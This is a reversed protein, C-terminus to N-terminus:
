VYHEERKKASMVPTLAIFLGLVFEETRANPWPNFAGFVVHGGTVMAAFTLLLIVANRDWERIMPFFTATNALGFIARRSLKLILADAGYGLSLSLVQFPFQILYKPDQTYALVFVQLLIPACYRRLWKHEIGGLAYLLAFLIVVIVKSFTEFQTKYESDSM